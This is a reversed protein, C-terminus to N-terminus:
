CKRCGSELCLCIGTCLEFRGQGARTGPQWIQGPNLAVGGSATEAGKEVELRTRAWAPFLACFRHMKGGQSHSDHLIPSPNWGLRVPGRVAQLQPMRRAWAKESTESSTRSIMFGLGGNRTLARSGPRGQACDFPAAFTNISLRAIPGSFFSRM